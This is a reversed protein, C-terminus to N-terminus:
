SGEGGLLSGLRSDISHSENGLLAFWTPTKDRRMMQFLVSLSYLQVSPFAHQGDSTGFVTTSVCDVCLDLLSGIWDTVPNYTQLWDMGFVLDSSLLDLAHCRVSM